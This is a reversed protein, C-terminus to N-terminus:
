DNTKAGSNNAVGKGNDATEIPDRTEGDVEPRVEKGSEMLSAHNIQVYTKTTTRRIQIERWMGGNASRWGMVSKVVSLATIRCIKMNLSLSFPTARGRLWSKYRLEQSLDLDVLIRVYHGIPRDFCCKNSSSDTCLPIGVSSAIAFVIKPRWYEQALVHIRLWVHATAQKLFYPNFNKTWAFLKLFGLNLNWSPISTM